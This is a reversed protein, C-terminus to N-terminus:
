DNVEARHWFATEVRVGSLPCTSWPGLSGGCRKCAVFMCPDFCSSCCCWSLTLFRCWAEAKWGGGQHGGWWASCAKRAAGPGLHGWADASRCRAAARGTSPASGLLGVAESRRIEAGCVAPSGAKRHGAVVWSQRGLAEGAAGLSGKSRALAASCGSVLSHVVLVKRLEASGPPPPTAACAPAQGSDARAWLGESAWPTRSARARPPCGPPDPCQM